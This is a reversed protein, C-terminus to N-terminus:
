ALFRRGISIAMFVFALVNLTTLLLRNWTKAEFLDFGKIAFAFAMSLYAASSLYKPAGLLSDIFFFLMLLLWIKYSRASTEPKVDTM